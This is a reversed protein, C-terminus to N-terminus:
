KQLRLKRAGRLAALALEVRISGYFPQFGTQLKLFQVMNIEGKWKIHKVADLAAVDGAFLRTLAIYSEVISTVWGHVAKRSSLTKAADARAAGRELNPLARLLKAVEGRMESIEARIAQELGASGDQTTLRAAKLGIDTLDDIAGVADVLDVFQNTLVIHSEVIGGVVDRLRALSKKTESSTPNAAGSELGQLAAQLQGIEGRMERVEARVAKQREAGNPVSM